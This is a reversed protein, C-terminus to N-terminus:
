KFLIQSLDEASPDTIRTSETHTKGITANAELGIKVGGLALKGNIGVTTSDTEMTTEILDVNEPKSSVEAFAELESAGGEMLKKAEALGQANLQTETKTVTGEGSSGFGRAGGVGASASANRSSESKMGIINGSADTKVSFSELAGASGRASVGVGGASARAEIKAGAKFFYKSEHTGDTNFKQTTGAVLSADM